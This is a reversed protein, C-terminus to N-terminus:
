EPSRLVEGRAGASLLQRTLWENVALEVLGQMDTGRALAIQRLRAATDRPMSFTMNTETNELRGRPKTLFHSVNRKRMDLKEGKTNIAGATSRRGFSRLSRRHRRELGPLDQKRREQKKGCAKGLHDRVRVGIYISLFGYIGSLIPGPRIKCATSRQEKDPVNKKLPSQWAGM